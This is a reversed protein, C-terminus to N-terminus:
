AQGPFLTTLHVSRGAMVMATSQSTFCFFLHGSFSMRICKIKYPYCLLNAVIQLIRHYVTAFLNVDNFIDCKKPRHAAKYAAQLAEKSVLSCFHSLVMNLIKIKPPINNAIIDSIM